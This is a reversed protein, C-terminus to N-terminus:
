KEDLGHIDAQQFLAGMDAPMPSAFTVPQETLPHMFGLAYAHLAQRPFDTWRSQARPTYLPDGVLAHGAHALHVRIQHTRGTELTCRVATVVHGQYIGHACAQVHTRAPKGHVTVAMRLRDRPDRGVPQDITQSVVHGWCLAWYRRSMTRAQLQRVLATQAILHRAVVMLGTTDKDLRHVIGARPLSALEPFQHLLGNLLTGQWHGAAPHVVLGAPKDVVILASDAAVIQLAMPEPAMARANDPRVPLLVLLEGGRVKWTGPKVVGDVTLRGDAIWAQLRARSFDDFLLAAAKDLREGGLAPWVVAECVTEDGNDQERDVILTM